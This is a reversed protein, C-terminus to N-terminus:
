FLKRKKGLTNTVGSVATNVPKSASRVNEVPDSGQKKAKAGGKAAVESQSKQEQALKAQQDRAVQGKSGGLIQDLAARVADQNLSSQPGEGAQVQQGGLLAMIRNYQDAQQNSYQPGAVKQTEIFRGIDLEGDSVKARNIDNVARAKEAPSLGSLAENILNDFNKQYDIRAQADSARLDQNMAATRQNAGRTIGGAAGQLSQSVQNRLANVGALSQDATQKAQDQAQQAATDIQARQNLLNGVQQKAAGSRGFLVSDLAAQGQSYGYNGRQQQQSTLASQVGAGTNLANIDQINIRNGAINSRDDAAQQGVADTDYSYLKQLNSGSEKDGKQIYQNQIRDNVSFQDSLNNYKKRYDELGKNIDQLNQTSKAQLDGTVNPSAAGQNKKLLTKGSVFNSKTFGPAQAVGPAPSGGSSVIPATGGQAVPATGAEDDEEERWDRVTAM